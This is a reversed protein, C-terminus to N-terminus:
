DKGFDSRTAFNKITPYAENTFRTNFSKHEKANFNVFKVYNKM